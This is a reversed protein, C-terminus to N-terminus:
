AALVHFLDLSLVFAIWAGLVLFPAFPVESRMTLGKGESSLTKKSLRQYAMLILTVITGIWFSLVLASLGTSFGLLLGISLALKADGFGMARGRSVVWILAFFSFLIPGSLWDLLTGHAFFLRLVLTLLVATYSLKDPIYTTRFDIVSIVIYISFVSLFLLIILIASLDYYFVKFASFISAFVLGTWVEVIVYQWSIPAKCQSCKGRLLIFSFVPVLEWWKLTKGCSPCASRGELSSGKEWRLAVVNLFSGIVAGLVFFLVLM